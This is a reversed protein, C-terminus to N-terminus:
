LDQGEENSFVSRYMLEIEKQSPMSPSTGYRTTSLAAGAIAFNVCERLSYNRSLYSAFIGVFADGAGTTDVTNVRIAPIIEHSIKSCFVGKEGLTIIVTDVFKELKAAIKSVKNCNSFSEALLCAEIENPILIDVYKLIEYDFERVPAPNLVTVAGSRKALEIARYTAQLNSEFQAVFVDCKEFIESNKEVDELTIDVCANPVVSIANNGNTENVIILAVGTGYTKSKLLYKKCLDYKEFAQEALISFLDQGIKTIFLVDAGSRKAAVAQNFGKGGPGMKFSESFVTEGPNPIHSSFVALDVVFSGLVSVRNVNM